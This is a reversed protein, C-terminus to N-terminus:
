QKGYSNVAESLLIGTAVSMNLSEAQGHLPIRLRVDALAAIDSAIGRSENGVIIVKRNSYQHRHYDTDGQIESSYITFGGDKLIKLQQVLDVNEVVPIHFISGMTSRLVKENYLDVSDAGLLVADIGFGDATRIITGVNGPDRGSDVALLFKMDLLEVLTEPKNVIGLVGQSNVTDSLTALDKDTIQKVPIDHERCHDFFWEVDISALSSMHLLLVEMAYDSHIAEKCMKIGEIIFKNERKRFKKSKLSKYIKLTNKSLPESKHSKL